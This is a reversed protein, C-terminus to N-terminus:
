WSRVSYLSWGILIMLIFLTYVLQKVM